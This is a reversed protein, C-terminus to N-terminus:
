VTIIFVDGERLYKLVLSIWVQIVLAWLLTTVGRVGNNDKGCTDAGKDVLYYVIELRGREAAM